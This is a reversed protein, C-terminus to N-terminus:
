PDCRTETEEMDPQTEDADELAYSGQSTQPEAPGATGERSRAASQSEDRADEQAQPQSQPADATDPSPCRVGVVGSCTVPREVAAEAM